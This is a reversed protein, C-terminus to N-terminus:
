SIVIRDRYRVKALMSQYAQPSAMAFERFEKLFHAQDYYGAAYAVECLTRSTQLNIKHLANQFRMIRCFQKLGIGISQSFMRQIHRRSYNLSQELQSVHLRGESELVMRLTQHVLGSSMFSGSSDVFSSFASTFLDVRRRFDTELAIGEILRDGDQMIDTLPILEGVTERASVVGFNDFWGPLLRVGFYNGGEKFFGPSSIPVPGCVKATPNGELNSFIIDVAGDPMVARGMEERESFEFQYFHAIGPGHAVHKHYVDSQMVFYPQIPHLM